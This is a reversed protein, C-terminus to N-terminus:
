TIEPAISLAGDPGLTIPVRHAPSPPPSLPGSVAPTQQKPPARRRARHLIILKHKVLLNEAIVARVGGPGCRKAVVVALDLVALLLDKM